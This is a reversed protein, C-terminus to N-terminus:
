DKYYHTLYIAYSDVVKRAYNRSNEYPIQDYTLTKKDTSFKDIWSQVNGAGAHYACAVLIPDGQFKENLYGLYWSGMTVNIEPDFLMDQTFNFIGIKPAIWEGTKPLLQMLGMADASSVADSVYSSENLVIAAVYAPHINYQAACKTILDKWKVTTRYVRTEYAKQAKERAQHLDNLKAIYLLDFALVFVVLMSLAICIVKQTKTLAYSKKHKRHKRKNHGQNPRTGDHAINGVPGGQPYESKPFTNAQGQKAYVVNSKTPYPRYQADNEAPSNRM